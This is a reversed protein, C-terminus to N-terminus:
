RATPDRYRGLLRNCDPCHVLLLGRREHRRLATVDHDADCNPCVPM